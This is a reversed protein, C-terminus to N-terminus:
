IKGAKKYASKATTEIEKQSLGNIDPESLLEHITDQLDLGHTAAKYALSYARNNRGGTGDGDKNTYKVIEDWTYKREHIKNNSYENKVKKDLVANDTLMKNSSYEYKVNPNVQPSTQIIHKKIFGYLMPADTLKGHMIYKGNAKASGAATAQKTYLIDIGKADLTQKTKLDQNFKFYLHFGGSPTSVFCPFSGGEIDSMAQSMADKTKGLKEFFTYFLELGDIGDAHNRDIDIILYGNDKPIFRFAKIVTGKARGHLDGKGLCLAEIDTLCSTLAEKYDENDGGAILAKNEYAGILKIGNDIYHKLTGIDAQIM